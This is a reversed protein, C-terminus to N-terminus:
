IRKKSRKYFFTNIPLVFINSTGLNGTSIASWEIATFLILFKSLISGFDGSFINETTTKTDYLTKFSKTTFRLNHFRWTCIESINSTILYYKFVQWLIARYFEKTFITLQTNSVLQWSGAMCPGINKNLSNSIKSNKMLQHFYVSSCM